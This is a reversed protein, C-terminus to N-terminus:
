SSQEFTKRRGIEALLRESRTFLLRFRESDSLIDAPAPTAGPVGPPAPTLLPPPSEPRPLDAEGVAPAEEEEEEERCRCWRSDEASVAADGVDGGGPEPPLAPPRRGGRTPGGASLSMLMEHLM